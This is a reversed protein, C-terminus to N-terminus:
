KIAINICFYIIIYFNIVSASIGTESNIGTNSNTVSLLEDTQIDSQMDVNEVSTTPVTMSHDTKTPFLALEDSSADDTVSTMEVDATKTETEMNESVSVSDCQEESATNEADHLSKRYLQISTRRLRRSTQKTFVPFAAIDDLDDEVSCQNSIQVDATIHPFCPTTDSNPTERVFGDFQDEQEM